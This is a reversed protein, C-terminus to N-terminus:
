IQNEQCVSFTFPSQPMKPLSFCPSALKTKNLLFAIGKSILYVVPSTEGCIYIYYVDLENEHLQKLVLRSDRITALSVAALREEVHDLWVFVNLIVEAVRHM